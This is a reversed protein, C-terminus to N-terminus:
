PFVIHNLNLLNIAIDEVGHTDLILIFHIKTKIQCLKGKEKLIQREKEM